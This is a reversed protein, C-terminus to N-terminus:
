GKRVKVVTIPEDGLDEPGGLYENYEEWSDAIPIIQGHKYVRGDKPVVIIEAGEKLYDEMWLFKEVTEHVSFDTQWVVVTEDPPRSSINRKDYMEGFRCNACLLTYEGLDGKELLELFFGFRNQSLYAKDGNNHKIQLVRPDTSFGCKACQGGLKEVVQLRLRTLLGKTSKSM